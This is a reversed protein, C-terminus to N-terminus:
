RHFGFGLRPLLPGDKITTKTVSVPPAQSVTTVPVNVMKKETGFLAQIQSWLGWLGSDQYPLVIAAEGSITGRIEPRFVMQSLPDYMQLATQGKITQDIAYSGGESFFKNYDM